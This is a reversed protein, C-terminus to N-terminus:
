APWAYIRPHTGVELSNLDSTLMEGFATSKVLHSGHGVIMLKSIQDDDKLNLRELNLALDKDDRVTLVHTDEPRVAAAMKRRFWAEHDVTLELQGPDLFQVLIAHSQSATAGATSIAISYIIWALSM